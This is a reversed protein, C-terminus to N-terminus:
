LIIGNNGGFNLYAFEAFLEKAKEDYAKAAEIENTHYGIHILKGNLGIRAEWKKTRKHWVVGKFRSITKRQQQIKRNMNNQSQTCNRLNHKQNDLGNHNEHDTQLEKPTDMIFRHMYQSTQKGNSKRISRVARWGYYYHHACWRYQNVREFDEDDVLAHKNQTLPITKM